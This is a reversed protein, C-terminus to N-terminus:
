SEESNPDIHPGSHVSVMGTDGRARSVRPAPFWILHTTCVANIRCLRPGLLERIVVPIAQIRAPVFPSKLPYPNTEFPAKWVKRIERSLAVRLM